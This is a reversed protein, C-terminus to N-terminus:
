WFEGDMQRWVRMRCRDLFEGSNFRPELVTNENDDINMLIGNITWKDMSKRHHFMLGAAGSSADYMAISRASTMTLARTVDESFTVSVVASCHRPWSLFGYFGRMNKSAEILNRVINKV